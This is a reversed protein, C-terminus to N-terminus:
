FRRSVTLRRSMTASQTNDAIVVDAFKVAIRESLRLFKCAWKGWKDRRHELGDINVVIRKVPVAVSVVAFVSM